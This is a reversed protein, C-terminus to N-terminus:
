FLSLFFHSPLGFLSFKESTHNWELSTVSFKRTDPESSLRNYRLFIHRFIDSWTAIWKDIWSGSMISPFLLSGYLSSIFFFIPIPFPIILEQKGLSQLNKNENEEDEEDRGICELFWIKWRIWETQFWHKHFNIVLDFSHSALSIFM